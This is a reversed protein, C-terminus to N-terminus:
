TTCACARSGAPSRTSSAALPLAPALPDRRRAKWGSVLDFGEDLKALLRPIEAPDDQLDGDITSSWTAARRPSARPSRPRRASTAACASSASTRRQARAAAHARRVLRRDLRRRRLGGGVRPRAPRARGAAGRLPARREAGRQARARRGLDRQSRIRARLTVRTVSSSVSSSAIWTTRARALRQRTLPRGAPRPARGRGPPAPVRPSRGAATRSSPSPRSRPGRGRIDGARQNDDLADGGPPGRAPRERSALRHPDRGASDNGLAGVGDDRDLINDFM